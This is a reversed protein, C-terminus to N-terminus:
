DELEINLTRATMVEPDAGSRVGSDLGDIVAMEETSLEFDFVQFNEQIRGPNFSKPIASIGNQLHWRLVVQAPTKGHRDAVHAITGDKLPDTLKGENALRRISGGIPSWAQTLIGLQQHTAQLEKQQFNPHLEVQNVSPVFETRMILKKLHDSSFNSVGIARM